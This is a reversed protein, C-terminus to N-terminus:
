EDYSYGDDSLGYGNVHEDTMYSGDDRGPSYIMSDEGLSSRQFGLDTMEDLSTIEEQNVQQRIWWCDAAVLAYTGAQAWDDPGDARYLVKVKGLDDQEVSRVNACMQVVFDNPLDQPLLERQARIREQLADIAETRRVSARRQQDDVTLVDKQTETAYSVIYVRGAFRNAFARALRGEPLHDIAAMNVRYRDMLKALEDFSDVLGLYLVRGENEGQESIWVNLARVSAVDVGMVVPNAGAYSDPQTYGRQAAAIM